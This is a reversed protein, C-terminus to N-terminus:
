EKRRTIYFSCVGDECVPPENYYCKLWSHLQRILGNAWGPVWKGSLKRNILYPLGFYHGWEVVQMAHPPFYHWWRIIEFGHRELRARWVEPPDSHYHRSIRNFFRRYLEALGPLKIRDFFRGISLSPLFNQNPGCFVFLAGPQLVRHLEQLVDDLYPIHELVSNSVASAFTQDPFPMRNGDAQTLSHYAGWHAAERIPAGWPDLGVELQRNFAISAFHGDGCGLDLVPSPLEIDKYFRAEVARMLSRFYPLSVLHLWLYDKEAVTTKGESVSM